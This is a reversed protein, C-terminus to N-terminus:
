LYALITFLNNAAKLYNQKKHGCSINIYTALGHSKITLRCRYSMGSIVRQRYGPTKIYGYWLKKILMYESVLCERLTDIIMESPNALTNRINKNRKKEVLAICGHIKAFTGLRVYEFCELNNEVNEKM